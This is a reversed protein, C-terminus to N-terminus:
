VRWRGPTMPPLAALARLDASDVFELSCVKITRQGRHLTIAGSKSEVVEVGANELQRRIQDRKAQIPTM